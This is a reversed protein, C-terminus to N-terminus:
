SNKWNKWTVMMQDFGKMEPDSRKQVQHTYLVKGCKSIFSEFIGSQFTPPCLLNDKMVFFESGSDILGWEAGDIYQNVMSIYAGALELPRPRHDILKRKLMKDYLEKGWERAILKAQLKGIKQELLECMAYFSEFPVMTEPNSVDFAVSELLSSVLDHFKTECLRLVDQVVEAKIRVNQRSNEMM